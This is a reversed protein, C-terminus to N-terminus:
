RLAHRRAQGVLGVLALTAALYLGSATAVVTFWEATTAATESLTRTLTTLEGIGLVVLAGTDKLLSVWHTLLADLSRRLTWPVRLVIVERTATLGMVRAQERLRRPYAAFFGRLIEGTHSWSYLALGLVAAFGLAAPTVAAALFVLLLVPVGRVLASGAQLVGGILRQGSCVIAYGLGAVMAAGGAAVFFLATLVLGGPRDGPLGLLLRVIM